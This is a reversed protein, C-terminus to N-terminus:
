LAAKGSICRDLKGLGAGLVADAEDGGQASDEAIFRTGLEGPLCQLLAEPHVIQDDGPLEQRLLFELPQETRLAHDPLLPHNANEKAHFFHYVLVM